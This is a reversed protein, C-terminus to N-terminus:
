GEWVHPMIRAVAAEYSALSPRPLAFFVAVAEEPFAVREGPALVRGVRHRVEPLRAALPDLWDNCHFAGDCPIWWAPSFALGPVLFANGRLFYNRAEVLPRTTPAQEPTAPRPPVLRHYLEGLTWPKDGVNEVWLCSAAVWELAERPAWYRWRTRVVTQVPAADEGSSCRRSSPESPAKWRGQYEVEAARFGTNECLAVCVAEEWTLGRTRGDIEQLVLPRLYGLMQGQFHLAMGRGTVPGEITLAGTALGVHHPTRTPHSQLSAGRLQASLQRPQAAVAGGARHLDHARGHVDRMAETLEAYPEDRENVLGYNSDEPFTARIGLQPEDVYMFYDSGVMFPLRLLTEQMLRFCRARQAQTNIRMGAGHRCPLGADLAPFSWETIMTPRGSKEHRERLMALTAEPVGRELDVRPYINMSVVACHRGVVEWIEPVEGAFRCGLVLHNPDHRRIAAIAPAFYSEAVHRAWAVAMAHGAQTAPEPTPATDKRLAEFDGFATGWATNFAAISRIREELFEIWAIKGSYDAPQKWIEEFLGWDKWRKGMWDLENDLFYGILDPRDRLPACREAAVRDCHEAWAPNFVNPFGTWHVRPVLADERAFAAGLGLTEVFPLGRGRLSQSNGTALANCNWDRLRRATKAAWADENGYKEAVFRGYPSYGLAECTHGNFRAHDTGLMLFDAGDPTV